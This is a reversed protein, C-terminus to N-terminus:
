PKFSGCTDPPGPRFPAGGATKVPTNAPPLNVTHVRLMRGNKDDYIMAEHQLETAGLIDGVCPDIVTLAQSSSNSFHNLDDQLGPMLKFFANLDREHGHIGQNLKGLSANAYVIEDQLQTNHAAFTDLLSAGNELDARLATDESAMQHAVQDFEVQLQDLERDQRDIRGTTDALNGTITPLQGLLRNLDQGRGDFMKGGELTATKVKERTSRDFIDNVQDLAVPAATDQLPISGGNPIKENGQTGPTLEIFPNGLLGKLRIQARTGRRLPAYKSDLQMVIRAGAASPSSDDALTVSTVKGVAAGNVVVDNAPVVGEASLFYGTVQYPKSANFVSLGALLGSIALASAAVKLIV